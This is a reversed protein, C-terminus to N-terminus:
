LCKTLSMVGGIVLLILILSIVMARLGPHSPMERRTVRQGGLELYRHLSALCPGELYAKDYEAYCHETDIRRKTLLAVPNASVWSLTEMDLSVHDQGDYGFRWFSNFHGDEQIECGFMRHTSHMGSSHNHYGMTQWTEVQHIEAWKRQKKTEKEWYKANMPTIWPAQPEAKDVRSDYRIFPQDDVYGVALFKPLSPGPESLYLYHYRLSHTGRPWSKNELKLNTLEAMVVKAMSAPGDAVLPLGWPSEAAGKQVLGSLLLLLPLLPPPPPRPHRASGSSRPWRTALRVCRGLAGTGPPDAKM